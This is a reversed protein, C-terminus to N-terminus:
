RAPPGCEVIEKGHLDPELESIDERVIDSGSQYESTPRPRSLNAAFHKNVKSLTIWKMYIM